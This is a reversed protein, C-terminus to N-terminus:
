PPAKLYPQIHQLEFHVADSLPHGKPFGFRKCFFYIPCCLKALPPHIIYDFHGKEISSFLRRDLLFILSPMMMIMAIAEEEEWNTLLVKEEVLYCQVITVPIHFENAERWPECFLWRMTAGRWLMAIICLTAKRYLYHEIM